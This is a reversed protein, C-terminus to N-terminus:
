FRYTIGLKWLTAGEAVPGVGQYFDWHDFIRLNLDALITANINRGADITLGAQEPWSIMRTFVLASVGMSVKESMNYFVRPSVGILTFPVKSEQYTITSSNGGGNAQGSGAFLGAVYGWRGINFEKQLTIIFSNYNAYDTDAAVGQRLKLKDNWSFTSLSVGWNAFKKLSEESTGGETASSGEQAHSALATLSIVAFILISNKILSM